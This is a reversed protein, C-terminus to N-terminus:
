KGLREVHKDVSPRPLDIRPVLILFGSLAMQIDLVVDTIPNKEGKQQVDIRSGSWDAKGHHREGRLRPQTEESKTKPLASSSHIARHTANGKEFRRPEM